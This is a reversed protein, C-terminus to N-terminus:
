ESSYTFIKPGEEPYESEVLYYKATLKLKENKYTFNATYAVEIHNGDRYSDSRHWHNDAIIEDEPELESDVMEKILGRILSRKPEVLINPHNMPNHKFKLKM